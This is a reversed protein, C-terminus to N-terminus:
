LEFIIFIKTATRGRKGRRGAGGAPWGERYGNSDQPPARTPGQPQEGQEEGVVQGKQQGDRWIDM